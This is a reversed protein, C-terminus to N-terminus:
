RRGHRGGGSTTTTTTAVTSTASSSTSALVASQGTAFGLPVSTDGAGGTVSTATQFSWSVPASSCNNSFDCIGAALRATYTSGTRLFIDHAFLGWTGDGIQDVFAPVALGNSDVLTFTGNNIGTVPENFTVKAVFNSYVNSAGNAPYVSTVSPAVNDTTLNIVWSKVEVPVPPAGEVVAPEVSPTRNDDCPGKLVCPELIPLPANAPDALYAASEQDLDTNALNGLFEKAVIAELSQYYVAATVAIPGVADAPIVVSYRDSLDAVAAPMPLPSLRTDILFSDDFLDGDGDVDVYQPIGRPNNKDIPVGNSDIPVGDSNTVLNVATAYALALTPCGDGLTALAKMQHAYPDPTGPVLRWNCGPFNPDVMEETTFYGVGTSTRNWVSDHIDLEAGTATDFARVAVWSIRGEPFGSPFNHGSGDNTVTLASIGVTQGASATTPASLDLSVANRLRDWAMRSHHTPTGSGTSSYYAYHFKSGSSASTFSASSLVPYPQVAGSSGGHGGGHGGGGHGGGGHGGGGGGSSDTAVTAGLLNTVYANGGVFHHTYLADRVPGRFGVVGRLPAISSGNNYLTQTTGPQGFDQQMHCTQCDRKFAPDFNAQTRGTAPDIRDAYRSNSWETYTREIPFGGVWKDFPNLITVPNTVDHCAGCFESREFKVHYYGEHGNHHSGGAFRDQNAITTDFVDSIYADTGGVAGNWIPGFRAPRNIANPSLRFAGAGIGYGLNPSNTDAIDGVNGQGGLISARSGSGQAPIYEVGSKVYTSYPTRKSEANTHCVACFIGRKGSDTNRYLSQASNVVTAFARDTGNSSTPDFNPIVAAHEFNTGDGLDDISVGALPVADVYNSPMHCRSCFDDFLSGSGTTTVTTDPGTKFRSSTGNLAFPNLDNCAYAETGDIARGQANLNELVDGCGDTATARATLLFVAQWAPDRWANAMMSGNWESFIRDHCGSCQGPNNVNNWDSEFPPAHGTFGGFYGAEELNYPAPEAIRNPLEGHRAYAQSVLGILGISASTAVLARLVYRKIDM